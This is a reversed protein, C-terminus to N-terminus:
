CAPRGGLRSGNRPAAALDLYTDLTDDLMRGLEFDGPLPGPRDAGALVRRCTDRLGQADGPTVRGAPFMATLLEAVGGHAYGVVPVGQALAELVTRGFAEPQRSLSVVLDSISFIERLDSRHGTFTLHGAVGKAQAAAQLEALYPGHRADAEGVVLGHIDPHSGKLAALLDIFDHHGKLRTIRGPLVLLRKGTLNPWTTQWAAQWAPSPRWDPHHHSPEIGRPIVRLTAPNWNRYHSHLYEAVSASVAIVAEGRTMVGSYPGVSYYGHVTTVLRPRRDAAMGRWALLCIWAPLRSRVHLVDVREAELLRRLRRVLGLTALSKRGIPWALHESGERELQPVLRGGASMVLSRHGQRVLHAAVELTGREVGGSELAPLVQLVTLRPSVLIAQDV